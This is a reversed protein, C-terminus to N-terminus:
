PKEKWSLLTLEHGIQPSPLIADVCGTEIALRPMDPFTASEPDQAYTRGGNAKIDCVGQSGDAGVAAGSLVVGIANEKYFRALSQFLYDASHNIGPPRPELKLRFNEVRAYQGPPLIYLHCPLIETDDSITEINLKAIRKLIEPLNSEYDRSLHPVLIFAMNEHCIAQEILDRLPEVGGASSAIGVTLIESKNLM